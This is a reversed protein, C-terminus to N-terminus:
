YRFIPQRLIRARGVLLNTPGAGACAFSLFYVSCRSSLYSDLSRLAIRVEAKITTVARDKGLKFSLEPRGDVIAVAIFDSDGVSVHAGRGAAWMLLGNPATTRLQITM